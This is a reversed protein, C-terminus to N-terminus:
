SVLTRVQRYSLTKKLLLQEAITKVAQWDPTELDKEELYTFLSRARCGLYKMYLNFEVM